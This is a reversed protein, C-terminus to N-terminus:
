DQECTCCAGYPAPNVMSGINKNWTDPYTENFHTEDLYEATASVIRINQNVKYLNILFDRYGHWCVAGGIKKKSGDKNTIWPSLRQYKSKNPGKKLKVRYCNKSLPNYDLAIELNSAISNISGEFNEITKINYVKM